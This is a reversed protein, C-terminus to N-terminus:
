NFGMCFPSFFSSKVRAQLTPMVSHFRRKEVIPVVVDMELYHAKYMMKVGITICGRLEIQFVVASM